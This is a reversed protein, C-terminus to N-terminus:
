VKTIKEYYREEKVRQEYNHKARLAREKEGPPFKQSKKLFGNTIIVKRGAFFFCLFRNPQPKFAFIKDGENRFKTEDRIMGIDGLRKVL